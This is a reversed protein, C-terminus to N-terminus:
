KVAVFSCKQFRLSTGFAHEEDVKFHEASNARMNFWLVNSDYFSKAYEQCLTQTHNSAAQLIALGLNSLNPIALFFSRLLLILSSPSWVNNNAARKTYPLM